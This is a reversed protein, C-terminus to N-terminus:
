QTKGFEGRSYENIKKCYEYDSKYKEFTPDVDLSDVFIYHLGKIDNSEICKKVETLM